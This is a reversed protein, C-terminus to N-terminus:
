VQKVNLGKRFFFFFFCFLFFCFLFLFYVMQFTLYPALSIPLNQVQLCGYVALGKSFFAHITKIPCDNLIELVLCKVTPFTGDTVLCFGTIAVDTGSFTHSFKWPECM